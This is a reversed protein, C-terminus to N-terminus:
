RETVIHSCCCCSRNQCNLNKLSASILFFLSSAWSFFAVLCCSDLILFKSVSFLIFSVIRLLFCSSTFIYQNISLLYTSLHISIASLYILCLKIANMKKFLLLVDTKTDTVTDKAFCRAYMLM